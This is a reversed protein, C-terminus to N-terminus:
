NSESSNDGNNEGFMADLLIQSEEIQKLIDRQNTDNGQICKYRGCIEAKKEPQDYVLCGKEKDIYRCPTELYISWYRSDGNYMLPVHKLWLLKLHDADPNIPCCTYRCCQQCGLCIKQQETLETM